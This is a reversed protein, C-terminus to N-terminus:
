KATETAAEILGGRKQWAEIVPAFSPLLGDAIPLNRSKLDAGGAATSWTFKTAQRDALIVDSFFRPLKPALKRGLTAAMVKSGGMVEDTERESHAILAFHCRTDTCLKQILRELNDMAVGWEGQHKVPKSGIVLNMAIYSLGSLGDVILARDTGWKCVDGYEKGDRDCKFNNLTTLVDIFQNHSRKNIDSLKSLAEYSFQNIKTASDIMDAWPIDAPAVYHWHIKDAPLDGLVEFGQETFVCFPTIGKDLFTKIATTKGTGTAGLLLTKVGPLPSIM